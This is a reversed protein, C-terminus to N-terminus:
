GSAFPNTVQLTGYKRGHQLDETLLVECGGRLASEVILADYFALKDRQHRKMALWLLPPDTKIVPHHALARLAKEAVTGALHLKRTLASYAEHLVQTSIVLRQAQGLEGILDQARRRKVPSAQDLAYVVINTDLFVKAGSM